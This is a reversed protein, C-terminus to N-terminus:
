QRPSTIVSVVEPVASMRQNLIRPPPTTEEPTTWPLGGLPMFGESQGSETGAGALIARATTRGGPMM